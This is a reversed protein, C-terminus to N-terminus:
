RLEESLHRVQPNDTVVEIGGAILADITETPLVLRTPVNALRRAREPDLDDFSLRTVVIEVDDCKWPRNDGRLQAAREASLACRYTVIDDRWARMMAVFADFALRMNMEVATDMVARLSDTATPGEIARNWDGAPPRSADVVVYLMRRLRVTDAETLPAYPTGLALRTQLIGALGLNDTLGGDLLKLYKGSHADRLDRVARALDRLVMPSQHDRPAGSVPAPPPGTCADPYKELVVPAFYGPVAMSAAVAISVPLSYLDSCLADFAHASFPFVVRHYMDSANIWIEPRGRRALDAFTAGHFVDRDLWRQLNNIDNMGGASLRMWNVPNFLSLRLEAEGDRLLVQERFSALGDKGHLGYYAATLSGGSVSSIFMVDDLLTNGEEGPVADLGKLVGFSFAAARTGGGSFSLAVMTEGISESPGLAQKQAENSVGRLPTNRPHNVPTTACGVLEVGCILLLIVLCYNSRRTM